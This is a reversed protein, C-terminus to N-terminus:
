SKDMRDMLRHELEDLNLCKNLQGLNLEHTSVKSNIIVRFESMEETIETLRKANKIVGELRPKM